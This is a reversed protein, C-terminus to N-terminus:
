RTALPDSSLLATNVEDPETAPGSDIRVRTQWVPDSAVALIWLRDAHICGFVVRSYAHQEEDLAETRAPHFPQQDVMNAVTVTVAKVVLDGVEHFSRPREYGLEFGSPHGACPDGPAGSTIRTPNCGEDPEHSSALDIDNM